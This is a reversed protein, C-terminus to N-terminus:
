DYSVDNSQLGRTLNMLEDATWKFRSDHALNRICSMSPYYLQLSIILMKAQQPYQTATATINQCLQDGLCNPQFRYILFTAIHIVFFDILFSMLLTVTASSFASILIILM